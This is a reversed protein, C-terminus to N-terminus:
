EAGSANVSERAQGMAEDLSDLHPGIEKSYQTVLTTYQRHVSTLKEFALKLKSSGPVDGAELRCQAGIKLLEARWGPSWEEWGARGASVPRTEVLKSIQEHLQTNLAELGTMCASLNAADVTGAEPMDPVVGQRARAGLYVYVYLGGCVWCALLLYM